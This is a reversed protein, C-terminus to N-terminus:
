RRVGRQLRLIVHRRHHHAAELLPRDRQGVDDRLDEQAQVEPVPGAAPQLRQAEVVAAPHAENVADARGHGDQDSHAVAGNWEGEQHSPPRHSTGAARLILIGGTARYSARRMIRSELTGGPGRASFHSLRRKSMFSTLGALLRLYRMRTTP